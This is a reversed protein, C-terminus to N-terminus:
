DPSRREATRSGTSRRRVTLTWATRPCSSAPRLKWTFTRCRRSGCSAPGSAPTCCTVAARATPRSRTCTRARCSSAVPGARSSSARSAATSRAWTSSASRRRRRPSRRIPSPSPPVSRAHVAELHGDFRIACCTGSGLPHIEGQTVLGILVEQEVAEEIAITADAEFPTVVAFPTRADDSAREVTGDVRARWVEGDLVIMEGDLADFTGLGLDGHRRLEGVTLDGDYAGDLLAELTSTQFAVHAAHEEAPLAAHRLAQLHLTSVLRPDIAM